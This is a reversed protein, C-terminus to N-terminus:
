RGRSQRIWFSCKQKPQCRWVICQSSLALFFTDGDCNSSDWLSETFLGLSNVSTVLSSDGFGGWFPLFLFCTQARPLNPATSASTSGLKPQLPEQLLLARRFFGPSSNRKWLSQLQIGPAKHVTWQSASPLLALHGLLWNWLCRAILFWSVFFMNELAWLSRHAAAPPPVILGWPEWFQTSAQAGLLIWTNQLHKPNM